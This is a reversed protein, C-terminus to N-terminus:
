AQPLQGERRLGPPEPPLVHGLIPGLVPVLIPVLIPLHATEGSDAGTRVDICETYCTPEQVEKRGKSRLKRM